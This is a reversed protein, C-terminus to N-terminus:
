VKYGSLSAGGYGRDNDNTSRIQFTTNAPVIIEFQNPNNGLIEATLVAKYTLMAQDDLYIAYSFVDNVAMSSWDFQLTIRFLYPEAPTNFDLLYTGSATLAQSGSWAFAYGEKIRHLVKSPGISM